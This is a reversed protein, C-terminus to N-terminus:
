IRSSGLKPRYRPSNTSALTCAQVLNRDPIFWFYTPFGPITGPEVNRADVDANGTPQDGYVAAMKGEPSEDKNWTTLLFSRPRLHQSMEYAYVPRIQSGDSPTFTQTSSIKPKDGDIWRHLDGLANRLGCFQHVGHNYYGCRTIRYFDLRATRYM